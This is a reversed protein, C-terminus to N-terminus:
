KVKLTFLKERLIILSDFPGNVKFSDGSVMLTDEAHGAIASRVIVRVQPCLKGATIYLSSNLNEKQVKKINELEAKRRLAVKRWQIKSM